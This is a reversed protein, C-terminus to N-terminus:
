FIAPLYFTHTPAGCYHLLTLSFYLGPFLIAKLIISFKREPELTKVTDSVEHRLQQFMNGHLDKTFIPKATTEM